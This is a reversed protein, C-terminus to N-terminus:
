KMSLSQKINYLKKIVEETIDSETLLSMNEAIVNNPFDWWRIELLSKIISENFRMKIKKAPVGVVISYPEVDKTVVAGAGVVAGDGINIGSLIKAGSGIWVDSGVVTNIASKNEETTNQTYAQRVDLGDFLQKYRFIPMMSVKTYDHSGLGIGVNEAISCFRGIRSFHVTTNIGIYTGCGVKSDNIYCRRNIANHGELLSSIVTSDDGISVSDGFNCIKVITDKFFKCEKGYTTDYIM